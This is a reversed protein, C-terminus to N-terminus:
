VKSLTPSTKLNENKHKQLMKQCVGSVPCVLSLLKIKKSSAFVKLFTLTDFNTPTLVFTPDVNDPTFFSSPCCNRPDFM